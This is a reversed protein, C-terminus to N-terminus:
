YARPRIVFFFVLLTLVVVGAMIGGVLPWNFPPQVPPAPAPPAPVPPAPAVVTFSTRLGNVVVTYSGAEEKSVSFSVLQSDAAAVTVSKEVEKVGDIM